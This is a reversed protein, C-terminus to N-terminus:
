QCCSQRETTLEDDDSDSDSDSDSDFDCEDDELLSSMSM